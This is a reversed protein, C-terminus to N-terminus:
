ILLMFFLVLKVVLAQIFTSLRPTSGGFFYFFSSCAICFVVVKFKDIEIGFGFFMLILIGIIEIGLEVRFLFLDLM